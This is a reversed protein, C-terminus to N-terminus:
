PLLYYRVLAAALGMVAGIVAGWIVLWILRSEMMHQIIEKVMQPNLEDLRGRILFRIKQEFSQTNELQSGLRKKIQDKLDTNGLEAAVAGRIAKIIKHRNADLLPMAMMALPNGQFSAELGNRFRAFFQEFDFLDSLQAFDLEAAELSLFREIQQSNFFERIMLAELDDKIERFNLAIIGSGYILPIKEFLMHIALSNTLSGSLGFLGASLLLQYPLTEKAFLFGAATLLLLALNIWYSTKKKM